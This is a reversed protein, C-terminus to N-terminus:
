SETLAPVSRHCALPWMKWEGSSTKFAYCLYHAVFIKVILIQSKEKISSKLKQSSTEPYLNKPVSIVALKGLKAM